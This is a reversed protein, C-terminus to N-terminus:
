ELSFDKVRFLADIHELIAQVAEQREEETVPVSRGKETRTKPCQWALVHDPGVTFRIACDGGISYGRVHDLCIRQGDSMLLVTGLKSDLRAIHPELERRQIQQQEQQQLQPPLGEQNPITPNAKPAM